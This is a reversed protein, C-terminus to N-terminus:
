KILNQRQQETSISRVLIDSNWQENKYNQLLPLVPMEPKEQQMYELATQDIDLVLPNAQDGSLRIWEPVVWDLSKIHQKLSAFSSDDWNVYFGVSIPRGAAPVQLSKSRDALVMERNANKESHIENRKIREAKLKKSAQKIQSETKTLPPLDPVQLGTDVQQPLATFPKLRIKPLFPNILVSVVFFAILVTTGIAAAAGVYSFARWRHGQEDFFVPQREVLEKESM